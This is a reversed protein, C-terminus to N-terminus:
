FPLLKVMTCYVMTNAANIDSAEAVSADLSAPTENDQSVGADIISTAVDKDRNGDVKGLLPDPKITLFDTTLGTLIDGEPQSDTDTIASPETDNTAILDAVGDVRDGLFDITDINSVLSSVAVDSKIESITQGTGIGTPVSATLPNQDSAFGNDNVVFPNSVQELISDAGAM